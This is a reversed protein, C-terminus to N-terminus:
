EYCRKDYGNIKLVIRKYIKTRIFFYKTERFRRMIYMLIELNPWKLFHWGKKIGQYRIFASLHGNLRSILNQLPYEFVTILMLGLHSIFYGILVTVFM